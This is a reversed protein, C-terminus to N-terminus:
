IGSTLDFTIHTNQTKAFNWNSQYFSSTATAIKFYGTKLLKRCEDFIVDNGM